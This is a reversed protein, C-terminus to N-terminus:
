NKTLNINESKNIQEAIQQAEATVAEEEQSAKVENNDTTM